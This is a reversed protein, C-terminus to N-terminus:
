ACAKANSLLSNSVIWLKNGFDDEVDPASCDVYTDSVAKFSECDTTVTGVDPIYHYDPIVADPCTADSTALTSSGQLFGGFSPLLFGGSGALSEYAQGAEQTEQVSRSRLSWKITHATADIGTVTIDETLAGIAAAVDQRFLYMASDYAEYELADDFQTFDVGTLKSVGSFTDSPQIVAGTGFDLGCTAIGDVMQLASLDVGCKDAASSILWPIDAAGLGPLENSGDRDMIILASTELAFRACCGFSDRVDQIFLKCSDSCVPNVRNNNNEYLAVCKKWETDLFLRKGAVMGNFYDATCGSACSGLMVRRAAESHRASYGSAGVIGLANSLLVRECGSCFSASAGAAPDYDDLVAPIDPM